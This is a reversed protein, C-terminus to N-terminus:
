RWVMEVMQSTSTVAALLHEYYANSQDGINAFHQSIQSNGPSTTITSSNEAQIISLKLYHYM